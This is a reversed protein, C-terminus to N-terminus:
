ADLISTKLLSAMIAHLEAPLQACLCLWDFEFNYIENFIYLVGSLTSRWTIFSILNVNEKWFLQNLVCYTFFVLM